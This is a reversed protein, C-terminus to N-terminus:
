LIPGLAASLQKRHEATAFDLLPDGDLVRETVRGGQRVYVAPRIEGNEGTEVTAAVADPGGEDVFHQLPLIGDDVIGRDPGFSVVRALYAQQHWLEPARAMEQCLFDIVEDLELRHETGEM